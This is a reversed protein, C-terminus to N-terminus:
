VDCKNDEQGGERDERFRRACRLRWTPSRPRRPTQVLKALFFRPIGTSESLERIQVPGGSGCPQGEVSGAAPQSQQGAPPVEQQASVDGGEPLSTEGPPEDPRGSCVDEPEAGAEQGDPQSQSDTATPGGEQEASAAAQPQQQEPSESAEIHEASEGREEIHVEFEVPGVRVRAGERLPAHERPQGDVFTGTRSALDWIVPGASLHCILAHATSVDPHDVPVDCGAGRGILAIRKGIRHEQDAGRLVLTVPAETPDAYVLGAASGNLSDAAPQIAVQVTTPGLRLVDGDSLPALEVRSDNLWTGTRSALDRILVHEATNVIACHVKSVQPNQVCIHARHTSGIVTVPRRLHWTKQEALGPNTTLRVRPATSALTELDSCDANPSTTSTM